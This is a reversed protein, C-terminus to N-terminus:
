RSDCYGFGRAGAEGLRRGGASGGGGLIVAGGALDDDDLNVAAAPRRTMVARFRLAPLRTTMWSLWAPMASANWGSRGNEIIKLVGRSLDRSIGRM